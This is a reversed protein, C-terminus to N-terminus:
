LGPSATPTDGSFSGDSTSLTRLRRPRFASAVNMHSPMGCTGHGHETRWTNECQTSMLPARLFLRTRLRAGNQLFASSLLRIACRALLSPALSKSFCTALWSPRSCIRVAKGLQAGGSAHRRSASGGSAGRSYESVLAIHSSPSRRDAASLTTSYAAFSPVERRPTADVHSSRTADADDDDDDGLPAIPTCRLFLAPKRGGTSTTPLETM